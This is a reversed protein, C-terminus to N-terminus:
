VHSHAHTQVTDHTLPHMDLFDRKDSYTMRLLMSKLGRKKILSRYSDKDPFWRFLRDVRAESVRMHRFNQKGDTRIEKNM